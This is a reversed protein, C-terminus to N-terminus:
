TAPPSRIPNSMPMPFSRDARSRSATAPSPSKRAPGFSLRATLYRSRASPAPFGTPCCSTALRTVAWRTEGPRLWYLGTVSLWGEEAKLDALRKQRWRALEQRYPPDSALVTAGLNFLGLLVAPSIAIAPRM